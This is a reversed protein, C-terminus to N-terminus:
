CMSDVNLKASKGYKCNNVQLFIEYMIQLFIKDIEVGFKV